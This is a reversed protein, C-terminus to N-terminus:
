FKGTGGSPMPGVEKETVDDVMAETHVKAQGQKVMKLWHFANEILKPDTREVPSVDAVAYTVKKGNIDSTEKKSSLRCVMSAPTLGANTNKMYMQTTLKQGARLSTRRFSLVYPFATGLELESKLLVYFNMCRDRQIQIEEGTGEVIETDEYKLNENTPTIPVSRLYTKEINGKGDNVIKYEIFVKEMFFPVFDVGKEFTGLLDLNLSERWEGFVAKGDTVPPSMPQMLLIRPIIIDKKTIASGAGWDIDDESVALANTGVPGSAPALAKEEKVQEEKKQKAM